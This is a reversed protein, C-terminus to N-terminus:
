GIAVVTEFRGDAQHDVISLRPRLRPQLPCSWCFPASGACRRCSRQRSGFGITLEGTTSATYISSRWGSAGHDGTQRVDSLKFLEPGAGGVVTFVAYDNDAPPTGRHRPRRVDLRVFDRGRGPREAEAQLGLRQSPTLQRGSREAPVTPYASSARSRPYLKRVSRRRPRASRRSDRWSSVMPRGIRPSAMVTEQYQGVTTVVSSTRNAASFPTEFSDILRENDSRGAIAITM